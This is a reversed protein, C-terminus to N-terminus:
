VSCCGNVCPLGGCDSITLCPTSGPCPNPACCGNKCIMGNPCNASVTCAIGNAGCPSVCKGNVCKDGTGTCIMACSGCNILDSLLDVCRGSPPGCCTLGAACTPPLGPAGCPQDKGGLTKSLHFGAHARRATLTMVTPLVVAAVALKKLADRRSLRAAESPPAIADELLHRRSLQELALRIMMEPNPVSLEERVLRAMEPITTQGDCHKWIFASTPNLCHAKHRELDYVLTEEALERVTLQVKRAKPAYM